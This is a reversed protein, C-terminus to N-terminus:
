PGPDLTLREWSASAIACLAGLAAFSTDAIPHEGGDAYLVAVVLDGLRIPLVALQCIESRGLAELLPEDAPSAPAGRFARGSVLPRGLCSEERCPLRVGDLQRPAGDGVARQGSLWGDDVVFFAASEAHARALELVSDVLVGRGQASAIAAELACARAPTTPETADSDGLPEPDLGHPDSAEIAAANAPAAPEIPEFLSDDLAAPSARPAATPLAGSRPIHRTHLDGFFTEGVLEEGAELPAIGLARRQEQAPDPEAAV